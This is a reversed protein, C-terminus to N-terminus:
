PSIEVNVVILSRWRWAISVLRHRDIGIITRHPRTSDSCTSHKATVIAAAATASATATKTANIDSTPSVLRSNSTM